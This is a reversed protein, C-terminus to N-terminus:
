SPMVTVDVFEELDPWGEIDFHVAVRWRVDNNNARFTPPADAPVQLTCTLEVPQGPFLQMAGSMEQM